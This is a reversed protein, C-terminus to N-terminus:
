DLWARCNDLISPGTQELEDPALTLITEPQAKIVECVRTAYEVAEADFDGDVNQRITLLAALGLYATSYAIPFLEREDDADEHDSPM